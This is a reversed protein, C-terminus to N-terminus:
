NMVVASVSVVVSGGGWSYTNDKINHIDIIVEYGFSAMGRGDPALTITTSNSEIEGAPTAWYQRKIVPEFDPGYGVSDTFSLNTVLAEVDINIDKDYREFQIQLALTDGVVVERTILFPRNAHLNFSIDANFYNNYLKASRTNTYPEAQAEKGIVVTVSGSAPAFNTVLFYLYDGDGVFIEVPDHALYGSERADLKGPGGAVVYQVRIGSTPEIASISVPVSEDKQSAFKVGCLSAAYSSGTTVMQNVSGGADLNFELQQTALSTYVDGEMEQMGIGSNFLVSYAFRDYMQSLSSGRSNLYSNLNALADGSGTMVSEFLDKFGFGNDVLFKIFHATQYMHFTQSSNVGSKLYSYPLKDKLGYSTAVHAAAYDATAEMFWRNSSMTVFTVYQNQVAHFLEHASVMHLEQEDIYTLPIEINKSFWGWEAEKDADWQDIYVKTHEPLKLKLDSYAKSADYLGTRVISAYEYIPDGSAVSGIVPASAEKNFYITFGPLTSTIYKDDQFFISWLSLHRTKVIIKSATEDTEFDTEQWADYEEDFYAVAMQSSADETGDLIAPNYDFELTIEGGLEGGQSTTIEFLRDPKFGNFTHDILQAVEAVTVTTGAPLTAPPIIVTAKNELEVRYQQNGAAITVSAEGSSPGTSTTSPTTIAPGTTAAPTNHTTTSSPDGGGCSGLILSTILLATAVVSFLCNRKLM